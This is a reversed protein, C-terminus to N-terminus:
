WHGNLAVYLANSEKWGSIRHNSLPFQAYWVRTSMLKATLTIVGRALPEDNHHSDCDLDDQSEQDRPSYAWRTYNIIANSPRSHLDISIPQPSKEKTIKRSVFVQEADQEFSGKSVAEKSNAVLENDLQQSAQSPLVMACMFVLISRLLLLTM